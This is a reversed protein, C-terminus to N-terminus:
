QLNSMKPTAAYTMKNEAAYTFGAFQAQVSDSLQSDNSISDTPALSTFEEDFNSTDVTSSVQPRWPSPVRRTALKQWDIESFFPDNKIEDTNEDHGLRATPDRDLLKSLLLRAAPPVEPPFTLEEHLIKRYMENTNESYFPPLGTLMEYLLVGLTWWDVVKTYGEGILLEPALYEPTGCFTNTKEDKTMHLKCLGFDCLAIHGSSDLLINEPKLDRYIINHSHLHELALLLQATYFKARYLDFQGEDQLHKFLEGGNVFALVLYLKEPSQFSFKLNVIYPHNIKALVNREAITHEVEDREVINAKKIIKMAYIRNTDKKKVQMVKGFSGKGIVKLLDFDEMRMKKNKESKKYGMQVQLEGTVSADALGDGGALSKTSDVMKGDQTPPYLNLTGLCVDPRKDSLKVWLSVTVEKNIDSVDFHSRHKWVPNQPDCGEQANVATETQDFTILCYINKIVEKDKVLGKINVNKAKVVRVLLMGSSDLKREAKKEVVEDTTTKEETKGGNNTTSEQVKEEKKGEEKKVEEEKKGEEKKGEPSDKKAGFVKKM